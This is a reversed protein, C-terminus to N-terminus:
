HLLNPPELLIQPPKQLLQPLRHLPSKLPLWLPVWVLIQLLILKKFIQEQLVRLPIPLLLRFLFNLSPFLIKFRFITRFGMLLRFFTQIFGLRRQAQTVVLRRQSRLRM